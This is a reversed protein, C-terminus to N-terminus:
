WTCAAYDTRDNHKATSKYLVIIHNEYRLWTVVTFLIRWPIHLHNTENNFCYAFVLMWGYDTHTTWQWCRLNMIIKRTYSLLYAIFTFHSMSIQRGNWVRRGITGTVPVRSCGLDSETPTFRVFCICRISIRVKAWLLIMTKFVGTLHFNTFHIDIRWSLLLVHAPWDSSFKLVSSAGKNTVRIFGNAPFIIKADALATFYSEVNLYPRIISYGACKCKTNKCWFLTM